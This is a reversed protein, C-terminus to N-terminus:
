HCGCSKVVMNKYRKLIVNSSDDFYLVMIASLRIPACCPKPAQSPDVLHVLTQVIAHNTANMNLPFSCEGHCYYAAYGDPAIIWDQWGLDQFSVYLDRKQCSNKRHTPKFDTYPNRAEQDNYSTDATHRRRTSRTKRSPAKASGKLFAVMFPQQDAPDGSGMLGIEHPQIEREVSDSSIHILLGMNENPFAIWTLFPYTVNFTLWGNNKETVTVQDVSQLIIDEVKAGHRLMDIRLHYTGNSPLHGRRLDRYVNLEAKITNEEPSVDQVDFWFRRNHDHRLHPAPHHVHNVFSMIVDSDNIMRVSQNNTVFENHSKSPDLTIEGDDEDKFSNYLDLLYKPASYKREHMKPKPRHHLGLLNLIEQQMERRDSKPLTRYIITQDIGNDAYFGSSVITWYDQIM